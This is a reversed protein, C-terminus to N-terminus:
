DNKVGNDLFETVYGGLQQFTIKRNLKKNLDRIWFDGGGEFSKRLDSVNGSKKELFRMIHQKDYNKMNDTAGHLEELIKFNKKINNFQEEFADLQKNVHYFSITNKPPADSGTNNEPYVM